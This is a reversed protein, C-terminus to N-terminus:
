LDEGDEWKHLIEKLMSVDVALLMCDVRGEKDELFLDKENFTLRLEGFDLLERSGGSTATSARQSDVRGSTGQGPTSPEQLLEAPPGLWGIVKIDTAPVRSRAPSPLEMFYLNDPEGIDIYKHM